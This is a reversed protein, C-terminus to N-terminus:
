FWFPYEWSTDEGAYRDGTSTSSEVRLPHYRRYTELEYNRVLPGFFGIEEVGPLTLRGSRLEDLESYIRDVQDSFLPANGRRSSILHAALTTARRRVFNSNTLATPKHFQHLYLDITSTASGLIEQWIFSRDDRSVDDSLLDTAVEGLMRYVEAQSSYYASSAIIITDEITGQEALKNRYHTVGNIVAKYEYEYVVGSSPDAFTNTYTGLSSNTMATGTGVVIDGTDTRRVGFTDTRDELAVSTVDTLAGNTYATLTITSM